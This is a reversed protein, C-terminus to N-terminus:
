FDFAQKNANSGGRMMVVLMIVVGAVLIIPFIINLINYTAGHVFVFEVDNIAIADNNLQNITARIENLEDDNALYTVYTDGDILQGTVKYARYNIEGALPTVNVSDIGQDELLESFKSNSLEVPGNANGFSYFISILLIVLLAIMIFRSSRNNLPKNNNPNKAVAM